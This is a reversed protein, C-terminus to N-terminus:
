WGIVAKLNRLELRWIESGKRNGRQCRKLLIPTHLPFWWLFERHLQAPALWRYVTHSRVDKLYYVFGRVKEVTVEDIKIYEVREREDIGTIEM